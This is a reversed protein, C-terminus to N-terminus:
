VKSQNVILTKAQDAPLNLAGRAEAAANKVDQNPGNEIVQDLSQVQQPQLRNGFFKASTALSKLLSVRVDDATKEGMAAALLAGQGSASNLLALTQGSAKVVDPRADNLANLVPQEAPALNLVASPSQIQTLALRHLLEAARLAYNTAAAQDVPASAAKARAQDAAAKLAPADGPAVVVTVLPDNAARLAFPSANSRVAILKPAGAMRANQAAFGLLQDVAPAGGEDSAIIVDISPLQNAAAAAAEPTAGGAANYGSQKLAEVVANTQDPTALMVLASPVGTQTLAEALLPVVRDQGNFAQQPLAAALAFAAEYRVLRDTSGMGDILAPTVNTRGIIEQLSKIVRFAVQANRDKLARALANNLYQPGSDVGYFHASPQGPARTGDTQGEPLEAERKYDSALWLSIADGQSQGLKLSYECSRMAMIENFIPQPVQTRVLGKAEDWFWVNAPAKADRKDATIDANDYYFKEGLDYFLQAPAGGANMRALASSAAARAAPPINQDAAVKALYPVAASYGLEGLVGCVPILLDPNKSETVAVLPNLAPRGLDRLADRLVSHYQAKSPNRLYDIMIPVALEGSDRLERMGLMYARGPNALRQVNKEIADPNARRSRRGENLLSIIQTSADKLEATGQWRLLYADLQAEDGHDKATQEFAVLVPVPQDKAALIKQAEALALDYRFTKGYHWFNEVTQKLDPAPQAEGPPAAPAAAADPAAPAAPAAEAPAPAAPAPEAPAPVAPAAPAAADPAAPAPAPAPTAPDAAPANQAFTTPVAALLLSAALALRTFKQTPLRKM